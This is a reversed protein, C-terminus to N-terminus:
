AWYVQTAKNRRGCEVFAELRDAERMYFGKTEVLNAFVDFAISTEDEPNCIGLKELTQYLNGSSMRISMVDATENVACMHADCIEKDCFIVQIGQNMILQFLALAAEANPDSKLIETVAELKEAGLLSPGFASVYDYMYENEYHYSSVKHGNALPADVLEKAIAKVTAEQLFLQGHEPAIALVSAWTEALQADTRVTNFMISMSM